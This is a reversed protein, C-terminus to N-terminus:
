QSEKKLPSLPISFRSLEEQNGGFVSIELVDDKMDLLKEMNDSDGDSMRFMDDMSYRPRAVFSFTVQAITGPEEGVNDDVVACYNPLIISKEPRSFEFRM